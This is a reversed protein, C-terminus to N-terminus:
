RSTKVNYVLDSKYVLEAGYVNLADTGHASASVAITLIDGPQCGKGDVNIYVWGALTTLNNVAASITPNLESSVAVGTRKRYITADLTPTNTDGASNALFRLRLYDNTQDYDRPVQIILKCVFTTGAAPIVGLLNTEPAAIPPTTANTLPAGNTDRFLNIVDISKKFGNGNVILDCSQKLASARLM